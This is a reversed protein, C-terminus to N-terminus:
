TQLFDIHRVHWEGHHREVNVYAVDSERAWWVVVLYRHVTDASASTVLYAWVFAQGSPPMSDVGINQIEIPWHSHWDRRAMPPLQFAPPPGPFVPLDKLTTHVLRDVTLSRCQSAPWNCVTNVVAEVALVASRYEPQPPPPPLAQCAALFAVAALMARPM